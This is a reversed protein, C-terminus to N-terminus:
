ESGPDGSASPLRGRLWRTQGRHNLEDEMVHYWAWLNTAPRPLWPLAATRTLWEDDVARLGELTRERVARLREVHADLTRGRAAAWAAPGLQILPGWEAWAETTAPLSFTQVAHVWEIAAVHALMAGIPNAREDHQHDLDATGLAAVGNLTTARTYELMAVLAGVMPTYGPAPVMELSPTMGHTM